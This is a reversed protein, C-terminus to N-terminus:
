TALRSPVVQRGLSSRQCGDHRRLTLRAPNATCPVPVPLPRRSRLSGMTVLGIVLLLIASPEPVPQTTTAMDTWGAGSGSPYQGSLSLVSLESGTTVDLQRLASTTTGGSSTGNTWLRGSNDFAMQGATMSANLTTYGASPNTLDVTFLGLRSTIGYLANGAIAIDGFNGFDTLNGVDIQGITDISGDMNFTMTMISPYADFDQGSQEDPIFYYTGDHYDAAGTLDMATSSPNGGPWQTGYISRLDTTLTVAGGMATPVDGSFTVARSYLNYNNDLNNSHIVRSLDFDFAFLNPQTGSALLTSVGTDTDISYFGGDTGGGFIFNQAPATSSALLLVALLGGLGHRPLLIDRKTRMISLSSRNAENKSDGTLGVGM